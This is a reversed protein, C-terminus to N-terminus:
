RAQVVGRPWATSCRGGGARGAGAICGLQDFGMASWVLTNIFDSWKIDEPPEAFAPAVDLQGNGLSAFLLIVFPLIVLVALVTSVACVRARLLAAPVHTPAGGGGTRLRGAGARGGGRVRRM